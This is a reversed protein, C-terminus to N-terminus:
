KRLMRSSVVKPIPTETREVCTESCAKMYANADNIEDQLNSCVDEGLFETPFPELGSNVAVRGGDTVPEAM